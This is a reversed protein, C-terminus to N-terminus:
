EDKKGMGLYSQQLYGTSNILTSREVAGWCATVIERCQNEKLWVNEFKFKNRRQRRATPVTCLLMPLHDSSPVSISRARADGFRELWADNVLIRDLKEQIWNPTGRSKEWTFQCGDFDLDRLGSSEIAENFGRILWQPHPHTGKKESSSRIDNFDGMLAWPLPSLTALHRLRQWSERRRNSKPNGYFGTYRWPELSTETTIMADIHYRSFGLISVESEEKWLLALGGSRGLSDVTFLGTYGVKNKITQMKFNNSFTEMLFIVNPRKSHILDVLVQVTELNGLGRCNWALYSM